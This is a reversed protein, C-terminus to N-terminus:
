NKCDNEGILCCGLQCQALDEAAEENWIGGEIICTQQAVNPMCTGEVTDICTGMRCYSTSDCSTPIVNCRQNGTVGCANGTYCEDQPADMCWAGAGGNGNDLRECCFSQEGVASVFGIGTFILIGLLLFMGFSFKKDLGM